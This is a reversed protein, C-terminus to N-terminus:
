LNRKVQLSQRVSLFNWLHKYGVSLSIHHFQYHVSHIMGVLRGNRNLIPSGSLGGITPISYFHKGDLEGFSLGDLIPAMEGVLLGTPAGIAFVREAYEPKKVSMKLAPIDVEQDNFHMLCIDKKRDTKLIYVYYMRDLRDYAKMMIERDGIMLREIENATNRVDCVHAATLVVKKNGQMVVSGTGTALMQWEECSQTEERCLGGQIWVELKLISKKVNSASKSLSVTNACSSIIFTSLLLLFVRIM